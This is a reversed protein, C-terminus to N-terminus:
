VDTFCQLFLFNDCFTGNHVFSLLANDILPEPLKKCWRKSARWYGGRSHRYVQMGCIKFGLSSQTTSADKNACREIYAADAGPYWTRRGIKIDVISPNVYYRALDELELLIRGDAERVGDTTLKLIGSM